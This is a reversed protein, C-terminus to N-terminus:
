VINVCINHQANFPLMKYVFLTTESVWNGSCGRTRIHKSSNVAKSDLALEFEALLTEFELYM